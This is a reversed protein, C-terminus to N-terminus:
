KHIAEGRKFKFLYTVSFWKEMVNEVKWDKGLSHILNQLKISDQKYLCTMIMELKSEKLCSHSSFFVKSYYSTIHYRRNEKFYNYSLPHPIPLVLNSM